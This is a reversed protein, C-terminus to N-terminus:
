PAEFTARAEVIYSGPELDISLGTTCTGSVCDGSQLTLRQVVPAGDLKPKVAIEVDTGSPVDTTREDIQVPGPAPVIIDIAGLYGIPDAPTAAGAISTIAVTPNVPNVIPGPSPVRQGPPNVNTGFSNSFSEMRISGLAGANGGTCCGVAGGVAELTGAGSISNALLRIAGGSGGAGARGCANFPASSQSGQPGDAEIRWTISITGNAAILIAGGGGGGGGAACVTSSTNSYGGGGGAGGRLPRLEPVGFFTGGGPATSTATVGGLGGGPGIGAGGDTALNVLLFAGDGGAYGGPGPAGGFAPTTGTANAPTLGNVSIVVSPGVSVDGRV